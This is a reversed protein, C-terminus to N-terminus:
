FGTILLVDSNVQNIASQELFYAESRLTKAKLALENIKAMSLKDKLIPVPVNGLHTEDIENVVAGYTFREILKRGYNSNLWVYLYGAITENVPIVRLIHENALWDQWHNPVINVRGITGSRTVLITNEKLFLQDNIRDGHISLSLYKKNSPDIEYIQKGGFFVRGHTDEVYHRKFRGPLFIKKTLTKDSLPLVRDANDLLFDIISNTIPVHYSAEFRDDLEDLKVSYTKITGATDYYEPRINELPILGLKSILLQEAEIMLRNSEDRLQFSKNIKNHIETKINPVPNPILIDGIDEPEIQNIVAGYINGKILTQGIKTKLFSYIYGGFEYPELRIAHESVYYRELTDNVYTLNGITGSRSVLITGKTVKCASARDKDIYKEPKPFAQLMEASGLFGVAQKSVKSIYNRKIRGGYHANKIFGDDGWLKKLPLNLKTIIDNARKVEINFVSAELKFKTKEVESTFVTTWKLDNVM